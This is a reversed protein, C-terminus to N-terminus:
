EFEKSTSNWWRASLIIKEKRSEEVEAEYVSKCSQCVCFEFYKKKSKTEYSCQMQSSCYKCEKM